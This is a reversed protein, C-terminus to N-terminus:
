NEIEVLIDVLLSRQDENLEGYQEFEDGAEEYISIQDLSMNEMQSALAEMLKFDDENM